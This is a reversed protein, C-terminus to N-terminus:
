GARRRVRRMAARPARAAPSAPSRINRRHRAAASAARSQRRPSRILLRSKMLRNTPTAAAHDSAACACPPRGFNRGRGQGRLDFNRAYFGDVPRRGIKSQAIVANIQHAAKAKRARLSDTTSPPYWQARRRGEVLAVPLPSIVKDRAEMRASSPSRIVVGSAATCSGNMASQTM